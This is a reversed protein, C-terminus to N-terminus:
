YPQGRGRSSWLGLALLCCSTVLILGASVLLGLRKRRKCRPRASPQAEIRQGSLFRRLDDALAGASGYRATQEKHLCRLCIAELDRPVGSRLVTPPQPEQTVVQQLTELPTAGRFPPRGTLLEYLIAGLAWVDTAPGVAKTKGGAQEPAMYSPTGMIVGSQTQGMEVDLRKALGFDTIKPLGEETLLVNAPKLDRHVIGRKHAYHVARALTEVLEAAERAPHPTAKLKHALSGGGVLELVLYTRGGKRGITHIQVINPHQLRAVAEAEVRFRAREEAGIARDAALLKLAVLRNLKAQEAKYVVAMGGRGLEGLIPYGAIQPYPESFGSVVASSRLATQGGPPNQLTSEPAPPLEDVTDAVVPETLALPSLSGAGCVPCCVAADQSGGAGQDTSGEWQHGRPCTFRQLM